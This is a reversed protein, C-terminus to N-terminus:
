GYDGKGPREQHIGTECIVCFSVCRCVHFQDASQGWAVLRQSGIFLESLRNERRVYASGESLPIEVLLMRM